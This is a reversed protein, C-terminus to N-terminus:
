EFEKRILERGKQFQKESVDGFIRFTELMEIADKKSFSTEIMDKIKKM